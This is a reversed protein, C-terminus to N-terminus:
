VEPLTPAKVVGVVILITLCLLLIPTLWKGLLTIMIRDSLCMVFCLVCFLMSFLQLSTNPFIHEIGGYAVAICRPVVGFAGLLSLTFLPLLWRALTGADGFFDAYSGKHLKVVFLGLFPLIIGTLFLGLFGILWRNGTEVGIQLPFVLNGSGFFMSFISFGYVLVYHNM